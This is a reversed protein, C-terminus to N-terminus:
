EPGMRCLPVDLMSFLSAPVSTRHYLYLTRRTSVIFIGPAYCVKWEGVYSIESDAVSIESATLYEHSGGTLSIGGMGVHSINMESLTIRLGATVAVGTGLANSVTVRELTINASNSISLGDGRTGDLQIDALRLNSAGTMSILESGM